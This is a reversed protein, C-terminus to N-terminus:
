LMGDPYNLAPQNTQKIETETARFVLYKSDWQVNQLEYCFAFDFALNYESALAWKTM